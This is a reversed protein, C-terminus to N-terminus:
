LHVITVDRGLESIRDAILTRHCNAPSHELCLLCTRHEHISDALDSLANSGNNELHARYRRAGETINGSKWLDRNAKPNGLVRVHEYSIGAASLTDRLQSKSFGRRRSLPLERVDVVREVGADTLNQVLTNPTATEYGITFLVFRKLPRTQHASTPKTRV